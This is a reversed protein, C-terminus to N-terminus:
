KGRRVQEQANRIDQILVDFNREHERYFPDRYKEYLQHLEDRTQELSKIRAVEDAKRAQENM